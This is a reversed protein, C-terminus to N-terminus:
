RSAANRARRHEMFGFVEVDHDPEEPGADRPQRSQQGPAPRDADREAARVDVEEVIEDLRDRHHHADGRPLHDDALPLDGVAEEDIVWPSTSTVWSPSRM